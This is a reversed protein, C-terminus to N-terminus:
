QASAAGIDDLRKKLALRDLKEVPLNLLLNIRTSLVSLARRFAQRKEEDNGQVAAPDPVGWHATM